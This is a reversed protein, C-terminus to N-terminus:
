SGIIRDFSARVEAFHAAYDLHARLAVDSVCACGFGRM